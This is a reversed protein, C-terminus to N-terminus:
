TMDLVQVEITCLLTKMKTSIIRIATTTMVATMIPTMIVTKFTRLTTVITM